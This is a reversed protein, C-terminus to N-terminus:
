LIGTADIYRDMYISSVMSRPVYTYVGSMVFIQRGIKSGGSSGTQKVLNKIDEDSKINYKDLYKVGGNNDILEIRYSNENDKRGVIVGDQEYKTQFEVMDNRFIDYDTVSNTSKNYGIVFFSSESSSYEKNDEKDIWSWVGEIKIFGYGKSRVDVALDKNRKINENKSLYYRFGSIIAFPIGSEIHTYLRSASSSVLAKYDRANDFLWNINNEQSNDVVSLIENLTQYQEKDTMEIFV